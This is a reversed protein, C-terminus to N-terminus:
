AELVVLNVLIYQSFCIPVANSPAFIMQRAHSDCLLFGNLFLFPFADLVDLVAMRPRVGRGGVSRDAVPIPFFGCGIKM